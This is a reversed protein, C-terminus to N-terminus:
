SLSIYKIIMRLPFNQPWLLMYFVFPVIAFVICLIQLFLHDYISLHIQTVIIAHM